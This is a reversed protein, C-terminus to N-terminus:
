NQSSDFVWPTTLPIWVEEVLPPPVVVGLDPLVFTQTNFVNIPPTGYNNAFTRDATAATRTTAAMFIELRLTVAATM